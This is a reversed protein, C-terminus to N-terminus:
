LTFGHLDSITLREALLATARELGDLAAAVKGAPPSRSLLAIVPREGAALGALRQEIAQARAMAAPDPEAVAVALLRAWHVCELLAPVPRELELRRLGLRGITLPLLALRLDALQRDVNRLAVIPAAGAEGALRARCTGVVEALALLANAGSRAVQDRTRVPLVLVAVLIAAAAGVATEELRLVLLSDTNSGLLGYLLGLLVTVCFIGLTYSVLFFYYMGFVAAFLLVAEILGHGGLVTALLLGAALGLLTGGVRQLGRTVTDGRSRTNLFVVYTSIVAWFWRQPSVAMGGAMAIASALTVRLAIRWALPGPPLRPVALSADLRSDGAQTPAVSLGEAAEGLASAARTIDALAAAIPSRSPAVPARTLDRASWRGRRLRRQHVVFQAAQRSALPGTAADMPLAALRAAALELDMLRLRTQTSGAPDLIALQDDAALAAETLRALSRQLKWGGSARSRVLAATDLVAAARGQVAQITRRLQAGPRMPLLVFCAFWTVPVAVAVSLLQLPLTGVPLRLYLGIYCAIIIMLGQGIARPGRGQLLFCVFVLGLFLADGAFVADRLLTTGAAGLMAPLALLLLTQERQRRTPERMLFAAMLSFVIGPATAIATEGMLRSLPAMACTCLFVAVTGRAAMLLRLMGPDAAVMRDWLALAALGITKAAWRTRRRRLHLM